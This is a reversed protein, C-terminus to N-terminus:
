HRSKIREHVKDDTWHQSLKYGPKCLEYDFYVDRGKSEAIDAYIDPTKDFDELNKLFYIWKGRTKGM